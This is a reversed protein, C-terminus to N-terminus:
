DILLHKIRELEIGYSKQDSVFDKYEKSSKFFSLIVKKNCLTDNRLGIFDLYSSYRFDKLDKVLGSVYPNLHIYRSVHLLQEDSEITVAKFEGQFLPGVRKNKTNFYKSYSNSVKRIFEQVGGDNLQKLLLHFHNPMLCYAHLKVRESYNKLTHSPAVKLSEGQLNIPSLYIKLYFLFTKYDEEDVFIIGKNVGRNYLHYYSNEVYTKLANKAPMIEYYVKL